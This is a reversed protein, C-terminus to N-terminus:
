CVKGKDMEQKSPSKLESLLIPQVYVPKSYIM